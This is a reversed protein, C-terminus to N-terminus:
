GEIINAGVEDGHQLDRLMAKLAKVIQAKTAAPNEVEKLAGDLLSLLYQVLEYNLAQYPSFQFLSIHVHGSFFVTWHVDCM